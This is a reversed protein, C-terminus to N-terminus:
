SGAGELRALIREALDIQGAAQGVHVTGRDLEGAMSRCHGELLGVSMPNEFGPIKEGTDWSGPLARLREALARLRDAQEDTMGSSM